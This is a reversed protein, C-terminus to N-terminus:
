SVSPCRSLHRSQSVVERNLTVVCAEYKRTHARAHRAYMAHTRAHGHSPTVHPGARSRRRLKPLRPMCVDDSPSAVTCRVEGYIIVGGAIISVTKIHGVVNYTLASTHGIVLFTSLTVLLGLVASIFIMTASPVSLVFAAKGPPPGTFVGREVVPILFALLVTAVPSFRQLLQSSGAAVAGLDACMLTRRTPDCMSAHAFSAAPSSPALFHLLSLLHCDATVPV